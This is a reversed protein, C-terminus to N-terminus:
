PQGHNCSRSAKGDVHATSACAALLEDFAIDPLDGDAYPEWVHPSAPLDAALEVRDGECVLEVVYGHEKHRVITVREAPFLGEGDEQYLYQGALYLVRGDEIELLYHPGEVASEAIRLARGVRHSRSDLLGARRLRKTEAAVAEFGSKRAGRWALIGLIFLVACFGVVLIHEALEPEEAELYLRLSFLAALSVALALLYYRNVRM